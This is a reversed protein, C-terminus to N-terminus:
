SKRVGGAFVRPWARCGSSAFANSNLHDEVRRMRARFQSPTEFIKNSAFATDLLRGIPAIMPSRVQLLQPLTHVRGPWMSGPLQLLPAAGGGGGEFRSPFRGNRGPWKYCTIPVRRFGNPFRGNRGAWKYCTNPVKRFDLRIRFGSIQASGMELM